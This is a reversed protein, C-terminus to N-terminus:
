IYRYVNMCIYTYVRIRLYIHMYLTYIYIYFSTGGWAGTVRTVPSISLLVATSQVKRKGLLLNM